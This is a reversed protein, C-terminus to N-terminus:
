SFPRKYPNTHEMENPSETQFMHRLEGKNRTSTADVPLSLLNNKATPTIIQRPSLYAGQIDPIERILEIKKSRDDKILAGFSADRWKHSVPDKYDIVQPDGDQIRLKLLFSQRNGYKDNVSLTQDVLSRAEEKRRQDWSSRMM